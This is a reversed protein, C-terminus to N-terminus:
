EFAIALPFIPKMLPRHKVARLRAQHTLNSNSKLILQADHAGFKFNM